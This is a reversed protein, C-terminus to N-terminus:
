RAVSPLSVKVRRSECGQRGSGYHLYVNSLVPSVLGGQPAGEESATFRGDEMIGAKLFRQVMRLLKPDAIRHALFRVLHAHSM